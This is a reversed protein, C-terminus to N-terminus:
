FHRDLAALRRVAEGQSHHVAVIRFVEPRLHWLETLSGLREIRLRLAQVLPPPLDALSAWFASRAAQVPGLARRALPARPWPVFGTTPAVLETPADLSVAPALAM